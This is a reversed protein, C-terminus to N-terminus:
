SSGSSRKRWRISTSWALIARREADPSEDLDAGPNEADSNIRIVRIEDELGALQVNEELQAVFRDVDTVSGSKAEQVIAETSEALEVEGYFHWM